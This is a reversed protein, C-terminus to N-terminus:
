DCLRSKTEVLTQSSQKGLVNMAAVGRQKHAREIQRNERVLRGDKEKREDEPAWILCDTTM